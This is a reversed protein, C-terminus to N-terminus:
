SDVRWKQCDDAQRVVDEAILAPIEQDVPQAFDRMRRESRDCLTGYPLRGYM